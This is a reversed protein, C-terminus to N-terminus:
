SGIYVVCVLIAVSLSECHMLFEIVIILCLSLWKFMSWPRVGFKDSTTSSLTPVCLRMPDRCSSGGYPVEMPEVDVNFFVGVEGGGHRRERPVFVVFFVLFCVFMSLSFLTWAVRDDSRRDSALPHTSEGPVDQSCRMTVLNENRARFGELNAVFM